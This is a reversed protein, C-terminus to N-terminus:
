VTAVARLVAVIKEETTPLDLEVIVKSSGSFRIRRQVNQPEAIGVSVMPLPDSEEDISKDRCRRIWLDLTSFAVGKRRLPGKADHRETPIPARYRM